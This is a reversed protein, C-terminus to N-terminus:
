KLQKAAKLGAVVTAFALVSILPITVFRWLELKQDACSSGVGCPILGKPIFGMYLLCHYAALAAGAIAFPQAYRYVNGDHTYLGVGLVIVLADLSAEIGSLSGGM